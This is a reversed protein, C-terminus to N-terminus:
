AAGGGRGECDGGVCGEDKDEGGMGEEEEEEGNVQGQGEDPRCAEERCVGARQRHHSSVFLFLPFPASPSSCLPPSLTSLFPLVKDKERLEATIIEIDRIPDVKDEVHM